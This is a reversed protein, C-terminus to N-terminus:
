HKRDARLSKAGRDSRREEYQSTTAEAGKRRRARLRSEVVAALLKAPCSVHQASPAFEHGSTLSARKLTGESTTMSITMPNKNRNRRPNGGSSRADEWDEDGEFSPGAADPAKREIMRVKFPM